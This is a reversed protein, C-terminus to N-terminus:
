REEPDGIEGPNTPDTPETPKPPDTEKPPDTQKPPDTEEPPNTPKKTPTTPKKKNTPTKKKPTSSTGSGSNSSSTNNTATDMNSITGATEKAAATDSKEVTVKVKKEIVTKGDDGTIKYILDYKGPTGLKVKSADATVEKIKEDYTVDAMWNVWYINSKVKIDKIGKVHSEYEEEIKIEFPLKTENGSNDTVTVVNQYTGAKKYKM